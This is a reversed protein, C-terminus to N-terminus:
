FGIKAKHTGELKKEADLIRTAASRLDDCTILKLAKIDPEVNSLRLAQAAIAHQLLRRAERANGYSEAKSREKFFELAVPRWGSELEHDANDAMKLLIELMELDTYTPFDISFTVRSAIGPNANLFQKMKNNKESVDGGYGALIILKEKGHKELEVCLQAMAEQSFTDMEGHNEATLSYIEDLFIADNACFISSILHATHGIYKAKLQAANISIFNKGPLLNNEFMIDTFRQAMETKGVGPPGSFAFVKNVGSAKLGAKERAAILKIVAVAESITKKVEDLGYICRNMRDVANENVERQKEEQVNKVAIQSKGLFVFDEQKLVGFDRKKLSIAKKVMQIITSNGEWCDARYKKLRNLVDGLDVAEDITYGLRAASVKLVSKCYPSDQAPDKLMYTQYELKFSIDDVLRDLNEGFGFGMADQSVGSKHGNSKEYIIYINSHTEGLLKLKETFQASLFHNKEIIVIIPIDDYRKWWPETPTTDQVTRFGIPGSFIPTNNSGNNMFYRDIEAAQIIPLKDEFSIEDEEYAGGCGTLGSIYKCALKGNEKSECVIMLKSAYDESDVIESLVGLHEAIKFDEKLVDFTKEPVEIYRIQQNDELLQTKVECDILHLQAPGFIEVFDEVLEEMDQEDSKKATRTNIFANVFRFLEESDERDAIKEALYEIYVENKHMLDLLREYSDSGSIKLTNFIFEVYERYRKGNVESSMLARAAAANAAYGCTRKRRNKMM